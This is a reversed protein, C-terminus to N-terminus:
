TPLINAGWSKGRRVEGGVSHKLCRLFDFGLSFYLCASPIYVCDCIRNTFFVAVMKGPLAFLFRKDGHLEVSM